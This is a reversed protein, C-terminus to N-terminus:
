NEAADMAKLKRELQQQESVGQTSGLVAREWSGYIPNPIVIWRTGWNETYQKVFASREERPQSAVSTFDGLDDGLLLLIRYRSAVETRRPGKDSSSWNMEGKTFVTDFSEMPFGTKELNRRTGQEVSSARNTVYFVTVGRSKAYRVFEAAGPIATARAENVWSNWSTENFPEQRRIRRVEHATNDLLTEDIDAIIAPPLDTFSDTQELAATWSRDLLAKDLITRAANFAQLALGEYEAATQIWLVANIKEDRPVAPVSAPSQNAAPLTRCGAAALCLAITIKGMQAKVEPRRKKMEVESRDGVFPFPWGSTAM